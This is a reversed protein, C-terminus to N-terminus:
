EILYQFTKQLPTGARPSPDPDGTRTRMDPLSTRSQASNPEDVGPTDGCFGGQFQSTIDRVDSLTHGHVFLSEYAHFNASPREDLVVPGEVEAPFHNMRRLSPRTEAHFHTLPKARQGKDVVGHPNLVAWDDSWYRM